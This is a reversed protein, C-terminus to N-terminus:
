SMERGHRNCAGGKVVVNKCGPFFCKQRKAGHTYCIGGKKAEKNCGLVSCKKNNRVAGHKTCLGGNVVINNCGSFTCKKQRAGHGVCVGGARALKDCGPAICMKRVTRKFSLKDSLIQDPTSCPQPSLPTAAECVDIPRVEDNVCDQQDQSELSSTHDSHRRKKLPLRFCPDSEDNSSRINSRCEETIESNGSASSVGTTSSVARCWEKRAGREVMMPNLAALLEAMRWDEETTTSCFNCTVPNIPAPPTISGNAGSTRGCYRLTM